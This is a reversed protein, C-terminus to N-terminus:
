SWLEKWHLVGFDLIRITRYRDLALDPDHCLNLSLKSSKLKLCKQHCFLWRNEALEAEMRRIYESLVKLQRSLIDQKERTMLTVKGDVKKCLICCKFSNPMAGEKEM